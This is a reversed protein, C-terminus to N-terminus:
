QERRAGILSWVLKGVIGDKAKNQMGRSRRSSMTNTRKRKRTSPPRSPVTNSCRASTSINKTSAKTWLKVPPPSNTGEHDSTAVPSRGFGSGTDSLRPGFGSTPSEPPTGTAQTRHGVETIYREAARLDTFSKKIREFASKGRRDTGDDDDDDWDIYSVEQSSQSCQPLHITTANINPFPTPRSPFDRSPYTPSNVRDVRGTRHTPPSRLPSIVDRIRTGYIIGDIPNGPAIGRKRGSSTM